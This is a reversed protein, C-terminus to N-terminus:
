DEHYPNAWSRHECGVADRHLRPRRARTHLAATGARRTSESDRPLFPVGARILTLVEFRVLPVQLALEDISVDRAAIVSLGYHGYIVQYQQVDARM